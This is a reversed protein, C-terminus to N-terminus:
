DKADGQPVVAGDGSPPVGKIREAFEVHPRVQVADHANCGTRKMSQRDLSVAHDNAPTIVILTFPIWRTTQIQRIRNSHSGPRVMAQCQPVVPCDDSPTQIVLSLDADRSGDM